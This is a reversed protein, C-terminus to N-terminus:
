GREGSAQRLQQTAAEVAKNAGGAEEQAQALVQQAQALAAERQSVQQGLDKLGAECQAILDADQTHTHAPVLVAPADGASYHATDVHM